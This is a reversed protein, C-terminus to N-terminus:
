RRWSPIDSNQLCRREFTVLGQPKTEAFVDVVTVSQLSVCGDDPPRPPPPVLKSEDTVVNFYHM